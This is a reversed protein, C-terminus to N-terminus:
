LFSSFSCWSSAPVLAAWCSSSSRLFRRSCCLFSKGVVAGGAASGGGPSDGTLRVEATWSFANSKEFDSEEDLNEIYATFSTTFFFIMNGNNPCIAIHNGLLPFAINFYQHSMQQDPLLGFLTHTCSTCV